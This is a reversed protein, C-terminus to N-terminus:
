RVIPEGDLMERVRRMLDTTSWPKNLVQLDAGANQTAAMEEPAYGSMLLVPPGSGQGRLAEYLQLGNMKPMALDSLVLDFPTPAARAMALAEEGDRAEEVHYGCKTLVRTAVRRVGEEDDVVLIREFGGSPTAVNAAPEKTVVPAAVAPFFMRVVTGRGVSSSLDIFGSQQKVLGYIMAMGLGTGKDLGKTTFFPEFARTKVEPTMGCGTDRVELSVYEGPTGWGHRRFHEEDLSARGVRVIIRGGDPMADRANTALNLLIQEIAGEDGEITMAGTADLDTTVEVSDPLLRRLAREMGCVVEALNMPRVELARRRSFAMLKRVMEAGRLAARRLEAWEARREGQVKGFEDGLLEANTLIITLLNNFDHAIGGALQGVAEMKQAQRLQEGLSRRETVDETVAILGDITGDPGRTAASNIRLDLLVGDRRRRRVEKGTLSEGALVRQLTARYDELAEDQVIPLDKGIVEEASWGFVREAAPNWKRVRGELDLAFIPLPAADILTRLTHTAQRLEEESAQRRRVDRRLTEEAERWGSIDQIIGLSYGHEEETDPLRTATLHGPFYSGDKRRYQKDMEYSKRRGARVAELLPAHRAHDSTETINQVRCEALEARSYGLMRQMALNSRVIRGERDIVGIGVGALEFIQGFRLESVQLAGTARSHAMALATLVVSGAALLALFLQLRVPGPAWGVGSFPGVDHIAFWAAALAVLAMGASSGRPGFRLAAWAILICVIYNLGAPGRLIFVSAAVLSLVLAWGEIVGPRIQSHPLKSSWTLLLPTVLLVGIADGAWWTFWTSLFGGTEQVRAFWLVASGFTASAMPALFAGIGVLLLADQVAHLHPKFGLRRLTWAAAATSSTVGLAVLAAAPISVGHLLAGAFSGFAIGPWWSLGLRILVALAYGAPPWVSHFFPHAQMLAVSPLTAVAYGLAVAIHLAIRRGRGPSPPAASAPGTTAAGNM